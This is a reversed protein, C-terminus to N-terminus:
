ESAERVRVMRVPEKPQESDEFTEVSGIKQVVEMGEVVQGFVTYYGDLDPLQSLCIYFQCSASNPDSGRAMGLTGPLHPVNSFEPALTYGAHGAPSGDPSGGQIVFDRAVRHFTLSDYFGRNVLSLFNGVHRPAIDPFLELVFTGLDTEVVVRPRALGAQPRAVERETEERSCGLVAMIAALVVIARRMVREKGRFRVGMYGM